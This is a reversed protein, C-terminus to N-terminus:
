PAILTVFSLIRNGSVIKQRMKGEKMAIQTEMAHEIVLRKKKKIKPELATLLVPDGIEGNQINAVLKIKARIAHDRKFYNRRINLNASNRRVWGAIETVLKMEKEVNWVVFVGILGHQISGGIVVM